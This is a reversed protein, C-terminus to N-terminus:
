IQNGLFSLPHCSSKITYIELSLAHSINVAGVSVM